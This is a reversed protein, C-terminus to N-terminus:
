RSRTEVIRRVARLGRKVRRECVEPWRSRDLIGIKGDDLLTRTKQSLSLLKILEPVSLDPFEALFEPDYIPLSFDGGHDEISLHIDRPSKSLLGFIGTLDVVGKGAETTFSVFGGESLQLGGDKVHTMCIWPLLRATGSLPDELMTLLNMTDLCIGLYEGPQAGCMDFLRLLEFSTFEFHTEIALIVGYDQLMIKQKKLSDSMMLLFEETSPGGKKWRMVGGSCSRIAQVGLLSAQEAAKRNTTFIDKSRRSPLDLPIHEGGGWEIYLNNEEAYGKLEGLFAKDLIQDPPLNVESFQIGDAGNIMAWDLLEFPTYNLPSLSYSDIGVRFKKM